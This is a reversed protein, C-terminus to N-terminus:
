VGYILGEDGWVCDLVLGVVGHNEVFGGGVFEVLVHLGVAQDGDGSQHIPQLDIPTQRALRQTIQLLFPLNLLHHPM